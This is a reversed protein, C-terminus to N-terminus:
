VIGMINALVNLRGRHSMGIVFEEIGLRAGCRLIEELAPITSEAGELGFRKTAVFKRALFQEFAEAGSLSRLLSRRRESGFSERFSPGEMRNMIWHRERPNQVHLYEITIVEYLM